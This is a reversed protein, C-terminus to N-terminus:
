SSHELWRRERSPGFSSKERKVEASLFVQQGAPAAFFEWGGAIWSYPCGRARLHDFDM